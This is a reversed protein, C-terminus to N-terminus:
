ASRRAAYIAMPALLETPRAAAVLKDRVELRLLGPHGTLVADIDSSPIADPTNTLLLVSRRADAKLLPALRLLAREDWPDADVLLLDIGTGPTNDALSTAHGGIAELQDSLSRSWARDPSVVCFSFADPAAAAEAFEAAAMEDRGATWPLGDGIGCLLRRESALRTAVATHSVRVSAPWAARSRGDGHCWPGHCVVLRALPWACLLQQICGYSFQDPTEQLVVVLDPTTDDVDALAAPISTATWTAALEHTPGLERSLQRSWAARPRAILLTRPGTM